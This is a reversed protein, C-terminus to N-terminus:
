LQLMVSAMYSNNQDKQIGFRTAISIVISNFRAMFGATVAPNGDGSHGGALLTYNEFLTYGLGAVCESCGDAKGSKFFHAAEAYLHLYQSRATALRMSGGVAVRPSLRGQEDDYSYGGLNSVSLGATYDLKKKGLYTSDSYNAGLSGYFGHVNAATKETAYGVTAFASLHRTIPHAYGADFTYSKMHITKDTIEQMQQDVVLNLTGMAMYRMGLLVAGKGTRVAVSPAHLLINEGDTPMYTLSYDAEFRNLDLAVTPNTYLLSATQSGLHTGGTALSLASTTTETIPLIRGQGFAALCSVALGLVLLIIKKNRNM